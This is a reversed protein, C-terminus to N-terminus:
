SLEFIHEIKKHNWTTEPFGGGGGGGGKIAGRYFVVRSEMGLM